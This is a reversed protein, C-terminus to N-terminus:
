RGKKREVAEKLAGLREETVRIAERVERESMKEDKLRKGMEKVDAASGQGDFKPAYMGDLGVRDELWDWLEGEESRWLEQYAAVRDPHTYGVGTGGRGAGPFLWSYLLMILLVAIVVQSTIFPKVLSAIPELPGRVPEFLGWNAEQEKVAAERKGNAATADFVEQKSRKGKGKKTPAGKVPPKTTVAAKLAATIDKVYQVQGGQAGSEIPGKLWSKGTWEITCNAIMRTTNNPGWMLCYKTKTTFVSGSPVDPTQTSCGVTVAKDLDFAELTITTICKTQKPGVSGNLPKIYSFTFTKHDNDLGFKDDQYDLERSKQDEVMWKKMFAGSAPGWMLSYVKGLPAPITCDTLPRDYHEATDTCETPAHTPQGPFDQGVAAGTVATDATELGKPIAGGNLQAAAALPQTSTKRVVSEEGVESGAISRAADPKTFSGMDDDDADEDYVEDDDDDDSDDDSNLSEAKETKDSTAVDDKDVAVGNLSSKLNPHAIKWIGVLLEYTSDRAVFSAFSNRAQLTSIVLGNPIIMATNRKEISSIEDFGIVLNTVWGFINSSFCVHGESIYLRGHLLIDKQLAASYDEILYDDDPVSRFLQHFDKNRKSSAVAFGTLRHGPPNSTVNALGTTSERLATAITNTTGTTASSARHRRRRGSIRSRVSGSRAIGEHDNAPREPTQEGNTTLHEQSAISMPRGGLAQSVASNVPKEYAVSVARAAAEEESNDAQVTNAIGDQQRSLDVTSNMPSIDQSQAIGYNSVSLIGKDITEAAPQPVTGKITNEVGGVPEEAGGSIKRDTKKQNPVLPTNNISSSLSDAAKQAASFVSTFFGTAGIPQTLTGGPTKTEELTPTLPAATSNSLKSPLNASQARRHRISEISSLPRAAPQKSGSTPAKPFQASPDTPTPPTILTTPTEPRSPPTLPLTSTNIRQRRPDSPSGPQEQEESTTPAGSTLDADTRQEKPKVSNGRSRPKFLGSPGPLGAVGSATPAFDASTDHSTSPEATFSKRLPSASREAVEPGSLSQQPPLSAVRSLNGTSASPSTGDLGVSHPSGSSDTGTQANLQPSSLTLYGAHSQHPSITPRTPKRSLEEDSYDDTLLSSNGSGDGLSLDSRSRPLDLSDSEGHQVSSRRSDSPGTGNKQKSSRRKRDIFAVLRSGTTSDDSDRRDDVSKKARTKVKELLGDVSSRLGSGDGSDGGNSSVDSALSNTSANPLDKRRLRSLGRPKGADVESSPM